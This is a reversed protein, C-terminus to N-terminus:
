MTRALAVYLENNSYPFIPGKQLQQLFAQVAKGEAWPEETLNAHLRDFPPDSSSTQNARLTAISTRIAEAALPPAWIGGGSNRVAHVYPIQIESTDEVIITGKPVFFFFHYNFKDPAPMGRKRRPVHEKRRRQLLLLVSNEYTRVCEALDSHSRITDLLM